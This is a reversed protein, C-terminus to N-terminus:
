RSAAANLPESAARDLVRRCPRVLYVTGALRGGTFAIAAATVGVLNLGRALGLFLAAIGIVELATALTIPRTMHGSVLIARQFSLFVSLAPIGVLIRTPALAFGTLESSLGSVTQFWFHALPTFAIVAYAASAALGLGLAFRGVSGAHEQRKGLLAIAVEQYSLGLARFMFSLANVVPYVALSEVPFRARGMFFTLMPPVVLGIMSTLALPYYFRAIGRYGLAADRARDTTGLLERVTRHAMIRSAIAEVCVGVSLAAAGVFAGPLAFVLYLMLATAAMTTLRIVTGYAVLRTREARILLGQFFRRYGIAGPWPLLILLAGYTLHAVEGTLGVLDQLLFRFVPPVLVLLMAATVLANLAQTFNRLKRYSKADEVLATSASMIMIVPAEVLIAFAVSVGWAALNFKPDPLRAIIAALFPGESAMM